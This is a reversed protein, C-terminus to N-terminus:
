NFITIKVDVVFFEGNLSTRDQQMGCTTVEEQTEGDKDSEPKFM